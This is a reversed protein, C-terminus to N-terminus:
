IKLQLINEKSIVKIRDRKEDSAHNNSSECIGVSTYCKM